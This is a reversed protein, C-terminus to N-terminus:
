IQEPAFRGGQPGMSDQDDHILECAADNTEPNLGSGDIPDSKAPHKVAGDAPLVAQGLAEARVMIGQELKRLPLGIQPDQLHALNFGDRINRHGMRKHFPQDPRNAAFVEIVRQKPRSRIEFVLQKIESGVEVPM